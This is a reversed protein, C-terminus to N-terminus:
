AIIWNKQVAYVIAQSRSSVKLKKYINSIHIKVTKDSIYLMRGIEKNTFGKALERLVEKERPTLIEQSSRGPHYRSHLFEKTMSPPIVCNGKYINQIGYILEDSSTDKLLYGEAGADLAQKLYHENDEVTLILIKIHPFKKKLFVTLDLGSEDQLHIDALIVDPLSAETKKIAEEITSASEVVKMNSDLNIVHSIGDRLVTHDDVVMVRIM